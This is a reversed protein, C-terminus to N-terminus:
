RRLAKTLREVAMGGGIWKDVIAGNPDILYYTPESDVRYLHHIPGEFPERIQPGTMGFKKQFAALTADSEDSSIGLFEIKDRSATNYFAVNKPADIRCPGCSTSWFELLVM